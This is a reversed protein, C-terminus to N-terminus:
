KSEQRQRDTPWENDVSPLPYTLQGHPPLSSQLPHPPSTIQLIHKVFLFSKKGKKKPEKKREKKKEKKEQNRAM